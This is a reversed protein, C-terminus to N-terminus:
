HSTPNAQRNEEISAEDLLVSCILLVLPLSFTCIARSFYNPLKSTLFCLFKTHSASYFSPILVFFLVMHRKLPDYSLNFSYCKERSTEVEVTLLSAGVEFARSLGLGTKVM